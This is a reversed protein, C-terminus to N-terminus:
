CSPWCVTLENFIKEVSDIYWKNIKKFLICGFYTTKGKIEFYKTTLGIGFRKNRSLFINGRAPQEKCDSKRQKKAALLLIGVRSSNDVISYCILLWCYTQLRYVCIQNSTVKSTQNVAQNLWLRGRHRSLQRRLLTSFHEFYM